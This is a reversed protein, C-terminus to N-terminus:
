AQEGVPNKRRVTAMRLLLLGSVLLCLALVTLAFVPFGTRALTGGATGAVFTTGLVRTYM